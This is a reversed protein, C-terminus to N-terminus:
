WQAIAVRKWSDTAYCVYIYDATIRIEGLTGTDGRSSPATQMASVRYGTASIDSLSTIHCGAALTTTGVGIGAGQTYIKSDQLGLTGSKSYPVYGDTLDTAILTEAQVNGDVELKESPSTTGIGVNGGSAIVMRNAGATEDYFALSTNESGSVGTRISYDKTGNYNEIRIGKNAGTGIERSVVHLISLPNTTNIGVNGTSTIRMREAANVITQLSNDSHDYKIIGIDNNGSDGFVLRGSQTAGSLIQIGSIASGDAVIQYATDVTAGSGTGVQLKAGPNTTGIGVNGNTGELFMIDGYTTSAFKIDRTSETLLRLQGSDAGLEGIQTNGTIAAGVIFSNGNNVAIDGGNVSLTKLPSTTGIGVNGSTSIRMVEVSAKRFIMHRNAVTDLNLGESNAYISGYHSTSNYFKVTGTTKVSGAVELKEGPSTTGIGVNGGNFHSDGYTRINVTEVGGSKGVVFGGASSAGIEYYNSTDYSARVRGVVDLKQQPSTTGIGVNGASTIRMKEAGANTSWFRLGGATTTNGYDIRPTTQTLQLDDTFLGKGVVHLKQTPSTTGIGVDGTEDIVIRDEGQVADTIHFRNTAGAIGLRYKGTIAGTRELYLQNVSDDSIHLKAGPSTTGIGVNGASTIRMRESNGSNFRIYSNNDGIFVPKTLNQGNGTAYYYGSGDQGALMEDDGGFIYSAAATFHLNDTLPYSSGASLPLYPGGIIGSGSGDVWDIGAATSVLVQNASGTSGNTDELFNTTYKKSM